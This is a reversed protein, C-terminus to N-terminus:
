PKPLQQERRTRKAPVRVAEFSILASDVGLANLRRIIDTAQTNTERSRQARREHFPDVQRHPRRHAAVCALGDPEALFCRAM